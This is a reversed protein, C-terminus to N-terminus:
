GGMLQRLAAPPLDVFQSLSPRFWRDALRVLADLM